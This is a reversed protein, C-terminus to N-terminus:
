HELFNIAGNLYAITKGLIEPNHGKTDWLKENKARLRAVVSNLNKIIQEKEAETFADANLVVYTHIHKAVPRSEFSAKQFPIKRLYCWIKRLLVGFGTTAQLSITTTELARSATKQVRQTDSTLEFIPDSLVNSNTLAKHFSTDYNTRQDIIIM